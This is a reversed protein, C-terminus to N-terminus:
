VGIDYRLIDGGINVKNTTHMGLYKGLFFIMQDSHIISHSKGISQSVTNNSSYEVM